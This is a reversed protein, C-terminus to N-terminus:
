ADDEKWREPVELMSSRIADQIGPGFARWVYPTAEESRACFTTEADPGLLAQIEALTFIVCGIHVRQPVVYGDYGAVYLARYGTGLLQTNVISTFSLNTRTLNALEFNANILNAGSLVTDTLDALTLNANLLCAHHLSACSLNADSLNADSLNADNLNAGILNAGSLNAGSLNAWVGDAECHRWAAHLRLVEALTETDM